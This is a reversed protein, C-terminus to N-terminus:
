LAYTQSQWVLQMLHLKNTFQFTNHGLILMRLLSTDFREM